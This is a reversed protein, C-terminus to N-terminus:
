ILRQFNNQVSLCDMLDGIRPLPFTYRITIKNIARSNTCMRWGGDKKPILTTPVVCPSLSEEFLGKELLGQVKREIEENEQPTMRYTSKNPLSAGLILDIHHSISRVLPLTNPLDDVIIDAFEDLMVKFKTPLDDLNTNTLIVKSKGILSFHNEEEKKVEQLLEKGSTLLVSPGIEEKTTEDKLPLLVHKNGNKELSYTNRRGDHIYKRDCKWPRGLLIHYIDM